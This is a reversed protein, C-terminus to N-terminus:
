RFTAEEVTQPEKSDMEQMELIKIEAELALILTQNIKM